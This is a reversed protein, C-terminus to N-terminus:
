VYNMCEPGLGAVISEPTTLRRGCRACKCSPYLTVGQLPQGSSMADLLRQFLTIPPCTITQYLSAKTTRIKLTDDYFLGLYRYDATNDPGYLISVFFRRPNNSDQSVKYTYRRQLGNPVADDMLTFTARGALVYRNLEVM